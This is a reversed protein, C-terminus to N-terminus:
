FTWNPTCLYDFIKLFVIYTYRKEAKKLSKAMKCNKKSISKSFSYHKM